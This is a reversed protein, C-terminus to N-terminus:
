DTRGVHVLNSTQDKQKIVQRQAPNEALRVKNTATLNLPTHQKQEGEGNGLEVHIWRGRENQLCLKGNKWQFLKSLQRQWVQNTEHSQKGVKGRAVKIGKKGGKKRGTAVSTIEVATLHLPTFLM